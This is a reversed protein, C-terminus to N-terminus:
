DSKISTAREQKLEEEPIQRVVVRMGEIAVVKIPMGKEILGGETVVDVRQSGILATGSPRLQTFATGTQLLLEPKEAGVTGIVRRSVFLKAMPSEPFWRMWVLIGVVMGLSVLVLLFNGGKVGFEIYGMVVAAVLCGFGVIGCVMGPILTEVLLLVAGIVILTIVIGMGLVM